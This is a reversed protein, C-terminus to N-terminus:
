TRSRKNRRPQGTSASEPRKWKFLRHQEVRRLVTDPIKHDENLQFGCDAVIEQNINWGYTNSTLLPEHSAHLPGKRAYWGSPGQWCPLYAGELVEEIKHSGNSLWQCEWNEAGDRRLVRAVGFGPKNDRPMTRPFVVLDGPELPKPLYKENQKNMTRRLGAPIYQRQPVSPEGNDGWPTYLSLTEARYIEEEGRETNLVKYKRSPGNGIVETVRFPGLFCDLMKQIRPLHNPLKEVRPPCNVLVFDGLEFDHPKYRELRRGLNYAAARRQRERVETHIRRMNTHLERMYDTEGLDPTPVPFALDMDTNPSRGTLVQMPSYGTAAHTSTRYVYLAVPVWKHWDDKLSNTLATLTASLWSHYRELFSNLQPTYAVTRIHKINFLKTFVEMVEGCFNSANDSLLVKPCSHNAILHEFLARAIESAEMTKLPVAIPYKSFCDIMTLLYRHGEATEYLPGVIDIACVDWPASTKMSGPETTGFRRRKKRKACVLCAKAWRQIDKDMNTWYFNRKILRSMRPTGPHGTYPLSHYSRLVCTVLAKPVVVVHTRGTPAERGATKKVLGDTEDVIYPCAKLLCKDTCRPQQGCCNLRATAITDRARVCYADDAQHDRFLQQLETQELQLISPIEMKEQSRSGNHKSGSEKEEQIKPNVHDRRSRTVVPKAMLQARSPHVMCKNQVVIRNHQLVEPSRTTAPQTRNSPETTRNSGDALASETNVRHLTGGRLVLRTPNHIHGVLDFIHNGYESKTPHRSLFDAVVNQSSPRTELDIDFSSLRLLWRLQRGTYKSDPKLLYKLSDCDTICRVTTGNFYPNWLELAALLALTEIECQAYGKQAPTLAKSFYAVAVMRGENDSQLLVAGIGDPSGDAMITFPKDFNPHALVPANVCRDRLEEFAHLQEPTFNKHFKGKQLLPRLPEAIKAYDKVFKRWYGTVGLFSRLEAISQPNTLKSIAELKEPDPSVGHQGVIYGVYSVEPRAIQMKSPSVCVNHERLRTWLARLDRLHDDFTASYTALDDSFAITSRWQLDGLVGDMANIWEQQSSIFGMAARKFVYTGLPSPFATYKRDDPHLEMQFYAAKADQVTIFKAGALCDVCDQMNPLTSILPRSLSNAGRRLDLCVRQTGDPKRVFLVPNLWGETDHVREIVDQKELKKVYEIMLARQSPNLNRGRTAVPQTGPPINIRVQVGKVTPLPTGKQYFVDAFEIILAVLQEYQDKRLRGRCTNLEEWM